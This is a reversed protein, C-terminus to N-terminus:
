SRATRDKISELLPGWGPAQQEDRPAPVLEAATLRDPTATSRLTSSRTATGHHHGTRAATRGTVATLSASLRGALRQAQRDPLQVATGSPVPAPLELGLAEGEGLLSVSTDTVGLVLTRGAVRVLQVSSTRGLGHRALVEIRTSGGGTGGLGRRRLLKAALGLLTLVVAMSVALRGLLAVVSLDEV